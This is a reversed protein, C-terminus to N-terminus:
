LSRRQVGPADSGSASAARGSGHPAFPIDYSWDLGLRSINEANIQNLPSYRQEAWNVGYAVREEANRSGTKLLADDVRRPQQALVVCTGLLAVFAPLWYHVYRRSRM